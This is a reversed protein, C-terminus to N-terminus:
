LMSGVRVCAGIHRLIGHIPAVSVAGAAPIDVQKDICSSRPPRRGGQRPTRPRPSTGGRRRCRRVPRTPCSQPALASAGRGRGSLRTGGVERPCAYLLVLVSGWMCQSGPDIYARSSPRAKGRPSVRVNFPLPSTRHRTVSPSHATTAQNVRDEGRSVIRAQASAM